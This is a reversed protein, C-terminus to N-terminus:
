KKVVMKRLQDGIEKAEIQAKRTKVLRDELHNVLKELKQGTKQINKTTKM